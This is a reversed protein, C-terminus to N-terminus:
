EEMLTNLVVPSAPPGLTYARMGYYGALLMAFVDYFSILEM